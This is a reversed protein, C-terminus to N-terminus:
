KATFYGPADAGGDIRAYEKDTHTSDYKTGAGGVLSACGDFMSNFVVHADTNSTVFASSAYITQLSSCAYFMDYMNTVSATNFRSLDLSTLKYCQWFMVGMNTVNSTDFCSLDLSTLKHCQWFMGEMDTVHSTDFRSLNLSTLEGCEAFMCYMSNVNSTDFHSLDLSTLEGCGWFMREMNTVNSTDMQEINRIETLEECGFFWYATSAPQIKDAFAVTVINDRQGYWPVDSSSSYAKDAKYVDTVSRGSDTRDNNQFVLEGDAYLVAYIDNSPLPANKDTFYGPASPGGDIRAYEKDTHASDYKTGSGGVLSACGEFMGYNDSVKDTVFSASAYITKLAGCDYFMHIMGTVNATNFQSIDLNTLSSCANFMLLMNQVNGTDFGSLDLHILGACGDFMGGMNKVNGTKFGSLDLSSLRACGFFMNLMSTAKETNFGSVDLSTLASCNYFMGGINTVNSTDFGSVDLSALAACSSFMGNMNTVKSTDFGSVNLSALALCSSFMGKMNTVNSTDFGSLDLTTLAFCRSFMNNMDTVNGTDLNAITWIRTLKQCEYFWYATSAPQIKDAFTATAINDRQGYWPAYSNSSSAKDVAYVDTVSRASDTRDNNQFM